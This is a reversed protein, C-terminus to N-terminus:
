GFPVGLCQYIKYKYKMEQYCIRSEQLSDSNYRKKELLIVNTELLIVVKRNYFYLMYLSANANATAIPREEGFLRYKIKLLQTYASHRFVRCPIWSYCVIMWWKWKLLEQYTIKPKYNTVGPPDNFLLITHLWSKKFVFYVFCLVLSLLAGIGPQM